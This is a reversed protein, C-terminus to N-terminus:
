MLFPNTQKETAIYTAPGHGPYVKTEEPLALIKNKLSDMLEDLDGGPLDTRGISQAFLSDGTIVYKEAENYFVVGGKSHGPTHIVKLTTNGFSIVDGDKLDTFEEGPDEFSYGFYGGYSSARAVQPIDGHNMYAPIEWQKRAFM